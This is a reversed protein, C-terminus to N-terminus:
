RSQDGINRNTNPLMLNYLTRSRLTCKTSALGISTTRVSRETYKTFTKLIDHVVLHRLAKFRSTTVVGIEYGRERGIGDGIGHYFQKLGGQMRFYTKGTGSVLKGPGPFVWKPGLRCLLRLVWRCGGAKFKYKLM